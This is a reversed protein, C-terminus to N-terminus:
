MESSRAMSTALTLVHDSKVCFKRLRQASSPCAKGAVGVFQRVAVLVVLMSEPTHVVGFRESVSSSSFSLDGSALLKLKARFFLGPMFDEALLGLSPLQDGLIRRLGRVFRLCNGVVGVVRFSFLLIRASENSTVLSM